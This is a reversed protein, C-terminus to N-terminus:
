FSSGERKANRYEEIAESIMSTLLQREAELDREVANEGKFIKDRYRVELKKIIMRQVTEWNVGTAEYFLGKYWDSDGLEECVNILDYQGNRDFSAKIAEAIEGHETISGLLAHFIRADETPIPFSEVPLEKNIKLELEALALNLEFLNNRAEAVYKKIRNRDLTYRETTNDDLVKVYFIHKKYLDLINTVNIFASFSQQFIDFDERTLTPDQVISETRVALTQFKKRDM